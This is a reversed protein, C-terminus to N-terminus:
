YIKNVQPDAHRCDVRWGVPTAGFGLQSSALVSYTKDGSVALLSDVPPAATCGTQYPITFVVSSADEQLGIDASEAFSQSGYFGYITAGTEGKQAYTITVGKTIALRAYARAIKLQISNLSL